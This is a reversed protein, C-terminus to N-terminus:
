IEIEGAFVFEVEGTLFIDTGDYDIYVEGGPSILKVSDSLVKNVIGAYISACSGTGCSLTKGSGREWVKMKVQQTSLKEVFEVNIGDPFHPSSEIEQGTKKTDISELNEV